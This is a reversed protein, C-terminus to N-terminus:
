DNSKYQAMGCSHEHRMHLQHMNISVALIYLGKGNTEMYELSTM